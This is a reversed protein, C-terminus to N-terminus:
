ALAREIRHVSEADRLTVLAGIPQGNEEIFDISLQLRDSSDAGSTVEVQQIPRHRAFSDTVM